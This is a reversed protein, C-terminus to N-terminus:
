DKDRRGVVVQLICATRNEKFATLCYADCRIINSIALSSQPSVRVVPSDLRIRYYESRFRFNKAENAWAQFFGVPCPTYINIARKTEFRALRLRNPQFASKCRRRRWAKEDM